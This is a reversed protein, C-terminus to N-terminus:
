TLTSQVPKIIISNSVLCQNQLCTSSEGIGDDSRPISKLSVEGTMCMSDGEYVMPWISWPDRGGVLEILGVKAM